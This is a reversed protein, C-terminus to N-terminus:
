GPDMATLFQAHTETPASLPPHANRDCPLHDNTRFVPCLEKGQRFLKPLDPQAIPSKEKTDFFEKFTGAGEPRFHPEVRPSLV